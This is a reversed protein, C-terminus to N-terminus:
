RLPRVRSIEGNKAVKFYTGAKLRKGAVRGDWQFRNLGKRTRGLPVRGITRIRPVTRGLLKRSGTVRTVFIGISQGKTTLSVKPRLTLRGLM